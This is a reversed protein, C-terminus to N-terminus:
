CIELIFCSFHYLSSIYPCCFSSLFPLSFCQVHPQSICIVSFQSNSWEANVRRQSGSLRKVYLKVRHQSVRGFASWLVSLFVKCANNSAECTTTLSKLLHKVLCSVSWLVRILVKCSALFRKVYCEHGWM